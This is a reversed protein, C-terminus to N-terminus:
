RDCLYPSVSFLTTPLGQTQVSFWNLILPPPDGRRHPSSKSAVVDQGLFGPDSRIPM